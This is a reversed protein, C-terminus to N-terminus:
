MDSFSRKLLTRGSFTFNLFLGLVFLALPKNAKALVDSIDIVITPYSSGTINLILTLIYTILPISTLVKKLIKKSRGKSDTQSFSNAIIYLVIFVIFSNGMDFMAIHQLGKKGLASEVIPYAFLGVNFGPLLMALMGRNKGQEKRFIFLGLLAMILGFSICIVPFLLLSNDFKMTSFTTIVIAPLTFNFILRTLGDGDKESLLGAKKSIYGLAIIILSITFQYNINNM